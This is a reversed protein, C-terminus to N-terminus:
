AEESVGLKIFYQNLLTHYDKRFDEDSKKIDHLYTHIDIQEDIEILCAAINSCHDSIREM